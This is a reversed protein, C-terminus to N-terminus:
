IENKVELYKKVRKKIVKSIEATFLDIADDPTLDPNRQMISEIVVLIPLVKIFDQMEDMKKKSREQIEEMLHNLNPLDEQNM